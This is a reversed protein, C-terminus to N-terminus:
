MWATSIPARLRGCTYSARAPDVYRQGPQSIFALSNALFLHSLEPHYPSNLTDYGWINNNWAPQKMVLTRGSVREVPSIRDTFFGTSEVEMRTQDPLKALYALHPDKLVIGEPTFEVEARPLEVSARSMLVENVWLQRADTRLPVDAVYIQREKAFLKWGTVSIAGSIVPKAGEAGTWSVRHHNRGGDMATFLLPSSLRYVGSALQVVVDHDANSERVARQAREFSRFPKEQTGAADDSGNPSVVIVATDKGVKPAAGFGFQLVAFMAVAAVCRSISFIKQM